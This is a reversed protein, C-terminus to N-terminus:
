SLVVNWPLLRDLSEDSSLNPLETFVYRLYDYPNIGNAKATEILSYLNASAVAGAQSKAFMWNKRGITFPRIAREAANNDIPYSGNELYGVLRPWQNSLYSLAKGMASTPLVTLLSKDMWKKLQNIVPQAEIQRIKFREDPPKEAIKKEIAYLNRIYAIGQDAKGTKGKPQLKQAEVFKRRAHAWCGLRTINKTRCASQYGDYGDVMITETSESLLMEPVSQSRTPSYHFVMGPQENFCAMLWLYSKSQAAKGPEDLVQLTTEDLHLLSQRQMHATLADILPQVLEGVRVMWNALNTRDLEIGARKFIDSQRYLPLADCYKQVAVYALLGSSAISKEIPQKPKKATVIHQDCCPCAYKLRKHRLVKIQAPVIDLQEHDDSGIVKLAHGDHPCVKEDEPLDHIIDERPYGDPISVRPKRKRQHAKVTIDTDSAVTEDEAALSEAENFLGLQDVSIKESSASFRRQLYLKIQEKLAAISSEHDAVKSREQALQERLNKVEQQLSEVENM